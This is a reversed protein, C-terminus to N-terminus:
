MKSAITWGVVKARQKAIEAKEGEFHEDVTERFLELWRDFHVKKLPMNLHKDTVNTTYGSVDLLVFSWFHVMKSKHQELNIKNFFPSLLPDNIIKGYFLDVLKVIDQNTKIKIM